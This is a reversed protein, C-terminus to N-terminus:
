KVIVWSSPPAVIQTSFSGDAGAQTLTAFATNPSVIYVPLSGPIAGPAGMVETFGNELWNLSIKSFDPTEGAQTWTYDFRSDAFVRSSPQPVLSAQGGLAPRSTSPTTPTTSPLPTSSSTAKSTPPQSASGSPFPTSSTPAIATVTGNQLPTPLTSSTTLTIPRSTAEGACAILVGIMLIGSWILMRNGLMRSM